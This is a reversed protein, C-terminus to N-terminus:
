FQANLDFQFVDIALPPGEIEDTTIWRASLWLNKYIGLEGGLSWGQANTGGLHFDSDTFADLVADAELRKYFLFGKWEGPYRVSPYGVTLGLQYGETEEPVTGGARRSVESQDFGLNKAYDALLIIHVPFWFDYDLTGTINLLEYDSALAMKYGSSPDIDFLTNGKQQFLPATYDKEQPRLLDNTEGVIKRYDYYAVGLKASLGMSREYAIGVQGGYLWKDDGSLEVEQLPFAGLTLFGKWPNEMMTDTRFDLAFGEFNLDGDWVLDSFFWPNPMRGGTLSIQPVKGWIPLEPKYTWNIYARDLVITDKNMYDGLTENTSVPDKENGTALRVGVKVKGVNTERDDLLNAQVDLRARLRARHRDELSNMVEDPKDPKAFPYYNNEDFFDGQYRLRIDGKLKIKQAWSSKYLKSAIDETIRKELRETNWETNRSRRLLEDTVYDLDERLKNLDEESTKESRGKEEGSPSTKGYREIFRDAEEESIVGKEKLVDVLADIRDSGGEATEAEECFVATPCFCSFLLIM